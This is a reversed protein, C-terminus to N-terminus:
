RRRLARALAATMAGGIVLTLGAVFLFAPPKKADPVSIVAVSSAPVDEALFRHFQHGEITVPAVSKLRAGSVIATPDELLVELIVPGHEMPVKLPFGDAPLDYHFALQKMGPAFPAYVYARSGAFQVAAAPIDGDAVIPSIAKAPVISSWVAADPVASPSVRTVSTDNSIEFVETVTREGDPAARSVILHRGRVTFPV